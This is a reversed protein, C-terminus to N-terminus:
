GLIDEIKKGIDVEKSSLLEEDGSTHQSWTTFSPVVAVPDHFPHPFCFTTCCQGVFLVLEELLSGAIATRFVSALGACVCADACPLVSEYDPLRKKTRGV